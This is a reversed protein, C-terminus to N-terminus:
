NWFHPSIPDGLYGFTTHHSIVLIGITAGRGITGEGRTPLRWKGTAKPTSWLPLHNNLEM